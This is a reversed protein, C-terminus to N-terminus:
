LEKYAEWSDWEMDCLEQTSITFSHEEVAPAHFDFDDDDTLWAPSIDAESIQCSAANPPNLAASHNTHLKPSPHPHPHPNTSYIFLTPTPTENNNNDGNKPSNLLLNQPNEQKMAYPPPKPKTPGLKVSTEREFELAADELDEETLDDDFDSSEKTQNSDLDPGPKPDLSAPPPPAPAQTLDGTFDLDQTSIQDLIDIHETATLTHAAQTLDGSFDLDQTSLQDLFRATDDKFLPPSPIQRQPLQAPPPPPPPVSPLSFTTPPSLERAIQTSSAFFGDWCDELPDPPKIHPAIVPPKQQPISNTKQADLSKRPPPPGMCNADDKPTGDDRGTVKSANNSIAPPRQQSSAKPPRINVAQPSTPKPQKAEETDVTKTKLTIKSLTIPTNSNASVIRLPNRWPTRPLSSVKLGNEPLQEIRLDVNEANGADLKRKQGVDMFRGLSLQSPGNHIGGEKPPSAIGMRQRAERERENREERKKINAKRRAERERIRDAREQLVARREIVALESASLRVTAGSKRYAKRAQKLTQPRHSIPAHSM